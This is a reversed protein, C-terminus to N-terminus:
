VGSKVIDGIGSMDIVDVDVRQFMTIDSPHLIPWVGCMGDTHERHFEELPNTRRNPHNALPAPNPKPLPVTRHAHIQGTFFNDLKEWAWLIETYQDRTIWRLCFWAFSQNLYIVQSQEFHIAPNKDTGVAFIHLVLLVSVFLSRGAQM